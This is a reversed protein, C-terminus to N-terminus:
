NVIISDYESNPLSIYKFDLEQLNKNIETTLSKPFTVKFSETNTFRQSIKTLTKYEDIIHPIMKKIERVNNLLPKVSVTGINNIVVELDDKIYVLLDDSSYVIKSVDLEEKIELLFPDIYYKNTNFLFNVNIM